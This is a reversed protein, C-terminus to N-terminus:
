CLTRLNMWTTASIRGKLSQIINWQPQVVNQKDEDTSPGETAEVKQGNHISSGHLDTYLYRKSVKSKSRRPASSSNNSRIAIGNKKKPQGM